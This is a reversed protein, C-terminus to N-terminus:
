KEGKQPRHVDHHVLRHSLERSPDHVHLRREYIDLPMQTVAEDVQATLSRETSVPPPVLRASRGVMSLRADLDDDTMSPAVYDRLRRIDEALPMPM